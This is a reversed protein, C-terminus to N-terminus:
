KIFMFLKSALSFNILQNFFLQNCDKLAETEKKWIFFFLTVIEFSIDFCWIFFFFLKTKRPSFQVAARSSVVVHFWLKESTPFNCASRVHATHSCPANESFRMGYSYLYM